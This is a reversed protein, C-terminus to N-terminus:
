RSSRAAEVRRRLETISAPERSSLRWGSVADLPVYCFSERGSGRYTVIVQMAGARGMGPASFTLDVISAIPVQARRRGVLLADGADYVFATYGFSQFGIAVAAVTGIAACVVPGSSIGSVSGTMAGALLIGFSVALLGVALGRTICVFKFGSIRVPVDRDARTQERASLVGM